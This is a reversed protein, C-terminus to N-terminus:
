FFFDFLFLFIRNHLASKGVTTLNSALRIENKEPVVSVLYSFNHSDFLGLICFVPKLALILFSSHRPLTISHLPFPFPGPPAM